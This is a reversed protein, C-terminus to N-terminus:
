QKTIEYVIRKHKVATSSKFNITPANTQDITVSSKPRDPGSDYWEYNVVDGSELFYNYLTISDSTNYDGPIEAMFILRETYTPGSGVSNRKMVSVWPEGIKIEGDLIFSGTAGVIDKASDLLVFDVTGKFDLERSTTQNGTRPDFRVLPPSVKSFNRFTRLYNQYWPSQGTTVETWNVTDNLITGRMVSYGRSHYITDEHKFLHPQNPFATGENYFTYDSWDLGDDSYAIVTGRNSAEAGPYNSNYHVRAICMYKGSVHELICPEATALNDCTASIETKTGVSETSTNYRLIFSNLATDEAVVEHNVNVYFPAYYCSIWIENGV